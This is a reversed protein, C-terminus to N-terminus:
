GAPVRELIGGPFYTVRETVVGENFPFPPEVVEFEPHAAVFDAVARRPNNTAWDAGARPAGSLQETIGDMAVVYSGHEVLPAYAELEALVHERTHASDLVVMVREGAAILGKVEEITAEATSSGEVLTILPALAHGEIEVRNHPRIEIDVGIVRGRGAAACLSPVLSGGHAVGTEVIV